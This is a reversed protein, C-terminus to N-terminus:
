QLEYSLHFQGSQLPLSSIQLSLPPKEGFHYINLSQSQKTLKVTCKHGVIGIEEEKGANTM